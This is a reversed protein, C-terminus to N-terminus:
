RGGFHVPMGRFPGRRTREPEEATTAVGTITLASDVEFPIEVVRTKSRGIALASDTETSLGAARTKLGTLALASDTETSLGVVRTKTGTIALATDTEVVFGVIGVQTVPYTIQPAAPLLRRSHEIRHQRPQRWATVPQAGVAPTGPASPLGAASLRTRKLSKRKPLTRTAWSPYQAQARSQVVGGGGLFLGERSKRRKLARPPVAAIPPVQQAPTVPYSDLQGVQRHTRHSPRYTARQEAWAPLPAESVQPAAPAAAVFDPLRQLKRSRLTRTVFTAELTRDVSPDAVVATPYSDLGARLLRRHTAKRKHLGTPTRACLEPEPKPTEPYVNHETVGLLRRAQLTAPLQVATWAPFNQATPPAVTPPLEVQAALTQLTRRFDVRVVKPPDSWAISPPTYREVPAHEVVLLRRVTDRRKRVAPALWASVAPTQAVPQATLAALWGVSQHRRSRLSVTRFAQELSRDASVVPSPSSASSLPSGLPRRRNTVNRRRRFYQWADWANPVDTWEVAVTIFDCQLSNITDTSWLAVGFGSNKVQAATLTAGWLDAISGTTSITPGTTVTITGSVAGVLTPATDTILQVVYNSSGSGTESMEVRVTFGRIAVNNPIASFDFNSALLYDSPVAAATGSTSADDATISGPTNWASSGARDVTSGTGPFVNGTSAM